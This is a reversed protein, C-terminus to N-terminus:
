LSKSQKPKPPRNKLRLPPLPNQQNPQNQRKLQNPQPLSKLRPLPLRAPAPACAAALMCILLGVFFMRKISMM